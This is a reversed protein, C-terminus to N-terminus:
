RKKRSAKKKAPAKRAAKKTAAKKAPAKKSAAKKAPAKKTAAKKPRDGAVYREELMALAARLGMAEGGKPRGPRTERNFAMVDIHAWPITKGVFRRLFLAAVIAGGYRGGGINKIDSISGELYRDYDEVLPMRWLPDHVRDGGQLLGQALTDDSAFLAPVDSGLAVRAAGTLTAYDLILEPTETAAEALADALILRGEADTNGVEVTIGKRTQLIDSPRMANGAVSNEVAPLLMRLRVPLNRQMVLSALALVHAGGGMDKKMLSMGDATKLDLGGTDFCVGKGVLTVKAADEPGWRLDILRPAVAAARGVAHVAPYGAELLDDGVTVEIAAGHREAVVRAAAELADPGMDEAPTNILDRVLYTAEALQTVRDTDVGAPWVLTRPVRRRKRYRELEYQGLAWGLALAELAAVDTCGEVAYRGKPLRAPLDGLGFPSADEPRVVLVGAITGDAGPLSLTRGPKPSFDNAKAWRQYTEHAALFRKAEEPELVHLPVTGANPRRTFFRDVSVPPVM